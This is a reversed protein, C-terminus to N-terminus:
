VLKTNPTARPEHAFRATHAIHAGQCTQARSPTGKPTPLAHAHAHSACMQLVNPACGSCARLVM